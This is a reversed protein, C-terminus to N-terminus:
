TEVPFAELLTVLTGAHLDRCMVLPRRISKVPGAEARPKLTQM